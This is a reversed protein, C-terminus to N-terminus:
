APYRGYDLGAKRKYFDLWERSSEKLLQILSLIFGRYSPDTRALPESIRRSTEAGSESADFPYFVGREKIIIRNMVPYVGSPGSAFKIHQYVGDPLSPTLERRFVDMENTM